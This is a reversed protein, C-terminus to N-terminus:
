LEKILNIFTVISIIGTITGILYNMNKQSKIRKSKIRDFFFIYIYLTVMTGMTAGAVYSSIGTTDFTLLGFSALTVSMYAQYPIPFVNLSSLLMGQFFRSKKSKVNTEINPKGKKNAILLFYITILVFIVFAVRKLIDIINPHNSLYRAFIVAILTQIIVIVCVGISFVLGRVHGEKVSIKAATM